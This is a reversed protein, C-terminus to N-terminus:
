QFTSLALPQLVVQKDLPLWLNLLEVGPLRFLWTLWRARLPDGNMDQDIHVRRAVRDFGDGNGQVSAGGLGGRRMVLGACKICYLKDGSALQYPAMGQLQQM